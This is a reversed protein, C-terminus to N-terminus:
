RRYLSKISGWTTRLVPTAACTGPSAGNITVCQSVLGSNTVTVEQGDAGRFLGSNWVITAPLSCGVCPGGAEVAYYFVLTLDFGFYNQNANLAAEDCRTLGMLIRARNPGHVGVEYGTIFCSPCPYGGGGGWPSQISSIPCIVSPRECSLGLSYENCGGLELHWFPPLSPAEVEVDLVVDLGHFHPMQVPLQFCGFVVAGSQSDQCSFVIESARGPGTNCANWTLDLGAFARSAGLCLLAATALVGLRM